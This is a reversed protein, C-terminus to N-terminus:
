DLKEALANAGKDIGTRAAALSGISAVPNFANPYQKTVYADLLQNSDADYIEVAYLVSGTMAADGGRMAQVGNYLNGAIDIHLLTSLVPTSTTAGTLTLHLRLTGAAPSDTVEFRTALNKSFSAQMYNALGTRDDQSLNGFQNDMGQYITVPDIIIKSYDQWNVQPSYAYPIKGSDTSPKLYNSSAIGTYAVPQASSCGALIACVAILSLPRLVVSNSM